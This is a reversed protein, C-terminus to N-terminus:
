RVYGKVVTCDGHLRFWLHLERKRHPNNVKLEFFKKGYEYEIYISGDEEFIPGKSTKYLFESIRPLSVTNVGRFYSDVIYYVHKPFLGCVSFEIEPYKVGFVDLLSM